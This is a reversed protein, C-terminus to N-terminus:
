PKIALPLLGSVNVEDIRWRTGEQYAIAPVHTIKLKETLFGQQAFYIRTELLTAMQNPSGGTLVWKIPKTNQYESAFRRQQADRADLFVLVKSLEFQPLAEQGDIKPWTRSDFPNVRTGAKAIVAGTTPAIIDKPLTISPDVYFTRPATTTTLGAVPPPNEISQRARETFENQMDALKGSAEFGKLRQDIWELMDIEGIPFIPAVQGLEKGNANFTAIGAVLIFPLSSLTRGLSKILPTLTKAM